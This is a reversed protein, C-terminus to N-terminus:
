KQKQKTYCLLNTSQSHGYLKSQTRLGFRKSTAFYSLITLKNLHISLIYEQFTMDEKIPNNTNKFKTIVTREQAKLYVHFKFRRNIRLMHKTAKSTAIKLPIFRMCEGGPWTPPVGNSDMSGYLTMMKERAEDADAVNNVYIGLGKPM